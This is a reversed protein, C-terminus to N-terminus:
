DMVPNDSRWVLDLNINSLGFKNKTENKNEDESL